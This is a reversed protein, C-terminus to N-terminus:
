QTMPTDKVGLVKMCATHSVLMYDGFPRWSIHVIEEDCHPCIANALVVKKDIKKKVVKSKKM